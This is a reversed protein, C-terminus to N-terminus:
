LNAWEEEAYRSIEQKKFQINLKKCWKRVANDSVGFQKGIKVFPSSFVLKKLQFRNVPMDSEKVIRRKCECKVCRKAGSSVEIGCDICYFQEANKYERIPYDINRKWHRGTNISQIMEYSLLYKKSIEGISLQSEQLDKTIEELIKINIRSSIGYCNLTQNYGNNCSNYFNIWYREKENLEQEECEEIVNFNFNKIGYKRFDNYLPRNYSNKNKSNSMAIHSELRKKIDISQGIYIKGNQKNEIKYIGVM